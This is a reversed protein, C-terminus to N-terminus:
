FKFSELLINVCYRNVDQPWYTYNNLQNLVFLSYICKNNIAFPIHMRVCKNPLVVTGEFGDDSFCFDYSDSSDFESSEGICHGTKINL